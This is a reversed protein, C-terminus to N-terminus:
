PAELRTWTLDAMRTRVPTIPIRRGANSRVDPVTAEGEVMRGVALAVGAREWGPASQLLPRVLAPTLSFAGDDAVTCALEGVAVWGSGEDPACVGQDCSFGAGCDEGCACDAEAGYGLIRVVLTLSDGRAGPTWTLEMPADWPGEFRVPDELDEGVWVGNDNYGHHPPRVAQGGIALDAVPEPTRVEAGVMPLPIAGVTASDPPFGGPFGLTFATDERWSDPIDGHGQVVAGMAGGYGVYWAEGAPEPFRAPDRPLSLVLGDGATLTVADGVDVYESVFPSLGTDTRVICGDEKPGVRPGPGLVTSNRDFAPDRPFGFFASGTVIESGDARPQDSWPGALGHGLNSGWFRVRAMEVVGGMPTPAPLIDDVPTGAGYIDVDYEDSPRVCGAVLLAGLLVTGTHRTGM